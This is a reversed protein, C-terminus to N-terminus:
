ENHGKKTIKFNFHLMIKRQWQSCKSLVRTSMVTSNQNSIEMWTKKGEVTGLVQSVDAEIRKQAEAWSSFSNSNREGPKLSAQFLVLILFLVKGVPSQFLFCTMNRLLEKYIQATRCQHNILQSWIKWSHKWLENIEHWSFSLADSSHSARRSLEWSALTRMCSSM